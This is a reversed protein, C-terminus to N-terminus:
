LEFGSGYQSLFQGAANHGANYALQDFPNATRLDNQATAFPTAFVCFALVSVFRM